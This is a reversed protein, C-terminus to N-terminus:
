ARAQSYHFLLQQRELYDESTMGYYTMDTLQKNWKVFDNRMIGEKIFGAKLAMQSSRHNHPRMRIYLKNM